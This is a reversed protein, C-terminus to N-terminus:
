RFKISLIFIIVSVLLIVINKVDWYDYKYKTRKKYIGYYKLMNIVKLENIDNQTKVRAIKRKKFSFKNDINDKYKDKFYIQNYLKKKSKKKYFLQEKFYRKEAKDLSTNLLIM